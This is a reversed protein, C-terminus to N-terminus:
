LIPKDCGCTGNIWNALMCTWINRDFSFSRQLSLVRKQYPFDNGRNGLAVVIVVAYLDGVCHACSGAALSTSQACAHANHKACRAKSSRDMHNCDGAAKNEIAPMSLLQM